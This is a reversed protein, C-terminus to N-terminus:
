KRLERVIGSSTSIVDTSAILANIMFINILLISFLKMM